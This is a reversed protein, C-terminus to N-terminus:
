LLLNSFNSFNFEYKTSQDFIKLKDAERLPLTKDFNIDLIICNIKKEM